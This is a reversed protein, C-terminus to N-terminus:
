IAQCCQETCYSCCTCETETDNHVDAAYPCEHPEIIDQDCTCGTLEIDVIEGMARKDSLNNFDLM